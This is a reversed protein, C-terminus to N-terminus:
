APLLSFLHIVVLALVLYTLSAIDSDRYKYVSKKEIKSSVPHGPHGGLIAPPTLGFSWFFDDNVFIIRNKSLVPDVLVVHDFSNTNGADTATGLFVIWQNHKHSNL